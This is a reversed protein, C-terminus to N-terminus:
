SAGPHELDMAASFLKDLRSEGPENDEFVVSVKSKGWEEEDGTASSGPAPAPTPAETVAPPAAAAGDAVELAAAAATDGGLQVVVGMDKELRKTWMDMYHEVKFHGDAIKQKMTEIGEEDIGPHELEMAKAFLKDLRSDASEEAGFVIVKSVPGGAAVSGPEAISSPLIFKKKKKPNKRKEAMAKRHAELAKREKLM